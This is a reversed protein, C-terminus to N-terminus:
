CHSRPFYQVICVTILSLNKMSMGGISGAAQRGGMIGSGCWLGSLLLVNLQRTCPRLIVCTSLLFSLSVLCFATNVPHARFSPGLLCGDGVVQGTGLEQADVGSFPFAGAPRARTVCPFLQYRRDIPGAQRQDRHRTLEDEDVWWTRWVGGSAEGSWSVRFYLIIFM